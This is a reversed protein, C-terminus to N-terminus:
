EAPSRLEKDFFDSVVDWNEPKAEPTEVTVEAQMQSLPDKGLTVGKKSPQQDAM